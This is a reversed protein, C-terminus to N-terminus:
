NECQPDHENDYEEQACMTYVYRDSPLHAFPLGFGHCFSM